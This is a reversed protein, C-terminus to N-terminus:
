KVLIKKSCGSGDAQRCTLIYLGAPMDAVNITASTRNVRRSKVKIGELNYLDITGLVGRSKITLRGNDCTIEPAGDAPLLEDAAASPTVKARVEASEGANADWATVSFRSFPNETPVMLETGSVKGAIPLGNEYVSYYVVPAEPDIWTPASWSIRHASGTFTQEVNEPADPVTPLIDRAPMHAYDAFLGAALREASDTDPGPWAIGWPSAVFRANLAKGSNGFTMVIGDTDGWQEELIRQPFDEAPIVCVTEVIGEDLLRAAAKAAEGSRDPRTAYWIRLGPFENALELSIRDTLDHADDPTLKEIAEGDIVIGDFGYDRLMTRYLDTDEDSQPTVVAMVTMHGARARNIMETTVLEGASPEMRLMVTNFNARNAREVEQLAALPSVAAPTIWAARVERPASAAPSGASALLM